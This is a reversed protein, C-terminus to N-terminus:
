QEEEFIDRQFRGRSGYLSTCDGAEGTGSRAVATSVNSQTSSLGPGIVGGM